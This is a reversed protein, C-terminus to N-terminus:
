RHPDPSRRRRRSPPAPTRRDPGPAARMPRARSTENGEGTLRVCRRSPATAQDSHAAPEDLAVNEDSWPAEVRRLWPRPDLESSRSWRRGCGRCAPSQELHLREARDGGPIDRCREAARGDSSLTWSSPGSSSPLDRPFRTSCRRKRTRISPVSSSRSRVRRRSGSSPRTSCASSGLSREGPRAACHPSGAFAAQATLGLVLLTMILITVRGGSRGPRPHRHSRHLQMSIRGESRARRRGPKARVEGTENRPGVDLVRDRSPVAGVDNQSTCLVYIHRRGPSPQACRGYPPCSAPLIMLLSDPGAVSLSRVGGPREGVCRRVVSHRRDIGSASRRGCCALWCRV